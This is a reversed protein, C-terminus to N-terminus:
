AKNRGNPNFNNAALQSIYQIEFSVSTKRLDNFYRMKKAISEKKWNRFDKLLRVM